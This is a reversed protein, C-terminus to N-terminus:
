GARALEAQIVAALTEPEGRCAAIAERGVLLRATGDEDLVIAPLRGAAALVARSAENRHLLEIPLPLAAACARWGPKGTPSWGHTVDCLACETQRLLKGVVYRLEGAVGGDADFVGVLRASM